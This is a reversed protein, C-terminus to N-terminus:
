RESAEENHMAPPMSWRPDWLALLLGAAMISVGAALVPKFASGASTVIVQGVGAVLV